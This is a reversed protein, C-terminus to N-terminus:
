LVGLNSLSGGEHEERARTTKTDSRLGRDRSNIVTYPTFQSAFNIKKWSSQWTTRNIFFGMKGGAIRSAM